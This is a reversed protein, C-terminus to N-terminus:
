DRFKKAWLPFLRPKLIMASRVITKSFLYKKKHNLFDWICLDILFYQLVGPFITFVYPNSHFITFSLNKNCVFNLQPKWWVLCLRSSRILQNVLEMLRYYSRGHFRPSCPIVIVYNKAEQIDFLHFYNDDLM